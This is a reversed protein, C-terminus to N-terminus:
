YWGKFYNLFSSPRNNEKNFQEKCFQKKCYDAIDTENNNDNINNKNENINKRNEHNEHNEDNVFNDECVSNCISSFESQTDTDTELLKDDEDEDETIDDDTQLIENLLEHLNNEINNLKKDITNLRVHIKGELKNLQYSDFKHSFSLYEFFNYSINTIGIIFTLYYFLDRYNSFFDLYTM